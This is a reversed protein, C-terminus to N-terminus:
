AASDTKDLRIIRETLHRSRQASRNRRSWLALGLISLGALGAYASPEPVASVTFNARGDSDFFDGGASETLFSLTISNGAAPLSWSSGSVFSFGFHGFPVGSAGPSAADASLTPFWFVELKTGATVSDNIPQLHTFTMLGPVGTTSSDFGGQWLITDTLSGGTFSSPTPMAFTNDSSGVILLLSGDQLPDGSANSLIGLNFDVTSTQAHSQPLTGALACCLVLIKKM